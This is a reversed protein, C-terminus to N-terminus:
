YKIIKVSSLTNNGKLTVIYVGSSLYQLNLSDEGQLLKKTKITRGTLSSIILEDFEDYNLIKLSNSVPNPYIKSEINNINTVSLSALTLEELIVNTISVNVNSLGLDIAIRAQSDNTSMDFITSYKTYSNTLSPSVFSYATWPSVNMGVSASINRPTDAKANFSLRYKKGAELNINGRLLQLHWAMDSGNSINVELEDNSRTMVASASELVNLVWGDSNNQFNSTYVSTGTYTDAVPIENVLLADSLEQNYTQADPNYIGFGASFEWYAWSWNLQEFYRAMYTTWKTRSVLDAQSYAGFEGIHVPIKKNESVAVLPALEQRVIEREAETDDWSTGVWTDAGTVWEAGQHTFPFPNYYHITLIINEDDPIQLSSLGSLGGFEATGILVIRDPNDERIEALADALFVNWKAPTIDGQPENLIEFLLLDSYDKFYTSIQKWQALFRDKQDDPNTFLEEHHHLNIITYLGENINADVVEKIRNLFSSEITYPATNSSRASPEWFIPIRIHDFGLNAILQPYSSQWQNDWATETPAEFMNGYNIGRGLKENIEFAQDRNQAGLTFIFLFFIFTISKKMLYRTRCNSELLLLNLNKFIFSYSKRM